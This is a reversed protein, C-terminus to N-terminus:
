GFYREENTFEISAWILKTGFSFRRLAALDGCYIGLSIATNMVPGHPDVGDSKAIRDALPVHQWARDSSVVLSDFRNKAVRDIATSYGITNEIKDFDNDIVKTIYAVNLKGQIALRGM